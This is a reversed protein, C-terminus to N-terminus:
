EEGLDLEPYMGKAFNVIGDKTRVGSAYMDGLMIPVVRGNAVASLSQLSGDELINDLSAQMVAQPDDGSYAMYVVFIVDPNLLILDEKGISSGEEKVLIGGLQQVMDGGLSSAGYNSISGGLFEVIAVTPRMDLDGTKELVTQIQGKMDDVIAQARDQVDFIKGINLIDTYENELTRNRATSATNSNIYINTGKKVWEAADGLTTDGFYSGWSFIMDPALMTVTERSPAFEDLYDLKEFGPKLDDSVENDLGAAAVMHDELGLALLTEISGQYVALVREPPKEYVTTLEAGDSGYTTITLPYQTRKEGRASDATSTGETEEAVAEGSVTAQQATITVDTNGSANGCAAAFLSASLALATLKATGAMTLTRKM